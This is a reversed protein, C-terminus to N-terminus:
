SRQAVYFHRRSEAQIPKFSFADYSALLKLEAAQLARHVQDPTYGYERHQETFKYYCEGNKIFATIKIEWSFNVSSYCSQWILTFDQEDIICVEPRTGTLWEIANLDFIFLGGPTLNEKVQKFTRMLDEYNALYNLGDHFCTILDVPKELQFSRMDATFFNVALGQKAAKERAINVMDPSLDLGMVQYGRRALPLTTNGTGCALDLITRPYHNFRKLIEELYNAWSEFDVGTVLLDYIKALGAYCQM